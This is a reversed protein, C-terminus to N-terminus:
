EDLQGLELEKVLETASSEEKVRLMFRKPKGEEIAFLTVINKERKPPM